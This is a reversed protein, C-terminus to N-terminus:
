TKASTQQMISAVVEPPYMKYQPNKEVFENISHLQKANLKETM